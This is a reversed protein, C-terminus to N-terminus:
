TRSVVLGDIRVLRDHSTTELRITKTRLSFPALMFVRHARRKSSALSVTGVLHTGVRVEVAGCGPCVSAVVGLHAVQANRLRMSVWQSRTTTATRMYYRSGTIRRWSSQASMSADDLARAVCGPASWKGVNGSGDTARVEVCYDSGPSLPLEGSTATTARWNAPYRWRLFGGNWPARHYRVDYSTIGSQDDTGSWTVTQSPALTKAPLTGLTAVPPTTDCRPVGNTFTLGGTTTTFIDSVYAGDQLKDWVVDGQM